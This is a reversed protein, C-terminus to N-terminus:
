IVRKENQENELVIPVVSVIDERDLQSWHM